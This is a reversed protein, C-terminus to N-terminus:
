AGPSRVLQQVRQHSIALLEAADRLGLHFEDVLVSAARQTAQQAEIKGRELRARAHESRRLEDRVNRPLRITEALRADDADDVWLALAERIRRRAGALTLGHTHCGPIDPVRATWSGGERELVVRYEGRNM